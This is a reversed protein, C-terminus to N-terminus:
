TILVFNIKLILYVEGVYLSTNMGFYNTPSIEIRKSQAIRWGLRYLGQPLLVPLYATSHAYFGEGM